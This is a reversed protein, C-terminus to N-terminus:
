LFVLRRFVCTHFLLFDSYFTFQRQLFQIHPAKLEVTVRFLVHLTFALFPPWVVFFQPGSLEVKSVSGERAAEVLPVYNYLEVSFCCIWMM